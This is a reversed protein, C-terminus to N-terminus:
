VEKGHQSIHIAPIALIMAVIALIVAIAGTWYPWAHGLQVYLFGACLPGLIRALAQLSQSGGQVLGQQHPGATQSLLSSISPEMLGSGLAFFVIGTVLLIPSSVFVITGTMVYTIMHCILGAITLKVEGFIPSLFRILVGQVLVDIIGVVTFMYGLVDPGWNLTDKVLVISNSQLIAFPFAFLFITMMLWRLRIAQFASGLQALPNLSGPHIHATRNERHLSEPLFFYGMLVNALTIGAVLYAPAQYSVNSVLGGLAPGVIFGAGAIGGITGFFKGREEPKILDGIYAFLVSMNAGTLGDVARSLFLVWLAGGLGFMLYGLTSGLLCILLVPRRGFRDSLAGLGPAAVFQCIAYTALLWGVTIALDNSSGVYLQTIFPLVPNFIGIGAASLFATASLVILAKRDPASNDDTLVIDKEM